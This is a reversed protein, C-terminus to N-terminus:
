QKNAFWKEFYEVIPKCCGATIDEECSDKSFVSCCMEDLGEYIDIRGDFGLALAQEKIQNFLEEMKSLDEKEDKWLEDQEKMEATYNIKM